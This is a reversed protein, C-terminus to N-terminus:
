LARDVFVPRKEAADFKSLGRRQSRAQWMAEALRQSVDAQRQLLMRARDGFEVPMPGLASPDVWDGAPVPTPPEETGGHMKAILEEAADVDLEVSQLAATWASRWAGEDRPPGAHVDEPSVPLLDTM